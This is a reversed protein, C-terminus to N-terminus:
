HSNRPCCRQLIEARQLHNAHINRYVSATGEDGPLLLKNDITVADMDQKSGPLIPMNGFEQAQYAIRAGGISAVFLMPIMVGLLVSQIAFRKQRICTLIAM